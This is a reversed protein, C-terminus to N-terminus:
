DSSLVNFTARRGDYSRIRFEKNIRRVAERSVDEFRKSIDVMSLETTRLLLAVRQVVEPPCRRGKM